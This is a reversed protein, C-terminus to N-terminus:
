ELFRERLTEMMEPTVGICETLYGRLSGYRSEVKDLSAEFIAPNASILTNLATQQAETTTEIQSIQPDYYHKSLTFDTVILDREAGLAALLMASACGARDKGQTCHWLIAGEAPDLTLLDAFFQRYVEQSNEEFFIIDYMNTCMTQVAPHEAYMLLMKVIDRENGTKVDFSSGKEDKDLSLSLALHSAKGPLIDPAALIEKEGRFDYIRQVNYKDALLTSDEATLESLRATRLLLDAKVHKNGIRYGGLQRANHASTIGIQQSELTPETYAVKSKCSVIM